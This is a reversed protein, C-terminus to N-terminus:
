LSPREGGKAGMWAKQLDMEDEWLEPAEEQGLGPARASEGWVVGCEIVYEEWCALLENLKGPEEAALDRTEGPDAVVNYLEWGDDGEGVGGQQRLIHVIKWGGKRLAGRAFLEWGIPESSAHIAWLAGPDDESKEGRGFYPLLSKGRIAHVDRNRFTTMRRKATIDGLSSKTVVDKEVAPPLAIGALDLFTPMFDMVTSFCRNLSGPVFAPAAFAGVPPKIICPM